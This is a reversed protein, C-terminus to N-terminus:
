QLDNTANTVPDTYSPKNSSDLLDMEKRARVGVDTEWLKLRKIEKKNLQHKSVGYVESGYKRKCDNRTVGWMIQGKPNRNMLVDKVTDPRWYGWSDKTRAPFPALEVEYWVGDIIHYQHMDNEGPVYQKPYGAWKRRKNKPTECLIGTDPNVYFLSYVGMDKTSHIPEGDVMIVDQEVDWGVHDRVHNQVVSDAKLSACIESWVDNWSQGVRSRLFKRLPGLRESFEKADWGHKRHRSTSERDWTKDGNEDRLARELRKKYGKPDDSKGGDGGVRPREVIVKAM